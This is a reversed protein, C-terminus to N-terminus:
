PWLNPSNQPLCLEAPKQMASSRLAKLIALTSQYQVFPCWTHLRKWFEKEVFYRGSQREMFCVQTLSLQLYFAYCPYLLANLPSQNPFELFIGHLCLVQSLDQLFLSPCPCPCELYLPGGPLLRSTPLGLLRKWCDLHSPCLRFSLIPVPPLLRVQSFVRLFILTTFLSPSTM